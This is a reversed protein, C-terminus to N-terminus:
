TGIPAKKIPVGEKIQKKTIELNEERLKIESEILKIVKEDEKDKQAQLFERWTNDFERLYKQKSILAKNYCLNGFLDSKESELRDVNKQTIELEEKTLKRNM